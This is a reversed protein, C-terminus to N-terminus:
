MESAPLVFILSERAFRRNSRPRSILFDFGAVVIDYEHAIRLGDQFPEIGLDLFAILM